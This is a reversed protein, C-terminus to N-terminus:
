TCESHVTYGLGFLIACSEHSWEHPTVCLSKNPESRTQDFQVRWGVLGDLYLITTDQFWLLSRCAVHNPTHKQTAFRGILLYVVGMIGKTKASVSSLHAFAQASTDSRKKLSFSDYRATPQINRPFTRPSCSLHLCPEWVTCLITINCLLKWWM